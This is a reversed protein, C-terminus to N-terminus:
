WGVRVSLGGGQPSLIPAVLVSRGGAPARYLLHLPRTALNVLAGIGAGAGIWIPTMMAAVLPGDECDGCSDRTAAIGIWGAGALGAGVLAGTLAHHSTKEVTLVESLPINVDRGNERLVVDTASLRLLRATRRPGNRFTVRVEQAHLLEPRTRLAFRVGGTVGVGPLDNVDYSPKGLSGWRFSAYTAVRPSFALNVGYIAHLRPTMTTSQQRDIQGAHNDCGRAVAPECTSTVGLEGSTRSVGVGGGFFSTLRSTGARFLLNVGLAWTERAEQVTEVLMATCMPPLCDSRSLSGYPLGDIVRNLLTSSFGTESRRAEGEVVLSRTVPIQISAEFTPVMSYIQYYRPGSTGPGSFSSMATQFHQGLGVSVTVDPLRSDNGAAPSSSNVPYAEQAAANMPSLSAALIFASAVRTTRM